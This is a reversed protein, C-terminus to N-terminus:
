SMNLFCSKYDIPLMNTENPYLGTDLIFSCTCFSIGIALDKIM